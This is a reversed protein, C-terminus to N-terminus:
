NSFGAGHLKTSTTLPHTLSGCASISAAYTLWGSCTHAGGPPRTRGTIAPVCGTRTPLHVVQVASQQYVTALRERRKMAAAPPPASAM